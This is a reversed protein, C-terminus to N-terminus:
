QDPRRQNASCQTLRCLPERVPRTALGKDTMLTWLHDAAVPISVGCCKACAETAEALAWRAEDPSPFQKPLFEHPLTPYCEAGGCQEPPEVSFTQRQSQWPNRVEGTHKETM